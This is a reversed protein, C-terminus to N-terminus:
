LWTIGSGIVFKKELINKITADASAMFGCKNYYPNDSTLTNESPNFDDINVYLELDYVKRLYEVTLHGLSEYVIRQRYDEDSEDVRRLVGYDRGHLDLYKCTAEQLFFQELFEKDDERTLWEGITYDILRGM